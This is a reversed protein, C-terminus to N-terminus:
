WRYKDWMEPNAWYRPNLWDPTTKYTAIDFGFLTGLREDIRALQTFGFATLDNRQWDGGLVVTALVRRAYLDRLRSLLIEGDARPVSQLGAVLVLDQRGLSPLTAVAESLPYHGPHPVSEAAVEDPAPDLPDPDGLVVYSQPREERLVRALM